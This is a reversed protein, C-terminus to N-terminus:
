NVRLSCGANVLPTAKKAAPSDDAPADPVVRVTATSKTAKKTARKAPAETSAPSSVEAVESPETLEAAVSSAALPIGVLLEANRGIGTPESALNPIELLGILEAPDSGRPRLPLCPGAPRDRGARRRREANEM